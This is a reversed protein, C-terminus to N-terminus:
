FKYGSIFRAGSNNCNFISQMINVPLTLAKDKCCDIVFSKTICCIQLKNKIFSKILLFLFDNDNTM